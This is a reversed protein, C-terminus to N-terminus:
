ASKRLLFRFTGGEETWEILEHGTTECYAQFDEVAGPDTALVELTAGPEAQRMAKGAKLIPWPCQLGKTDLTVDAMTSNERSRRWDTHSDQHYSEYLSVALKDNGLKDRCDM